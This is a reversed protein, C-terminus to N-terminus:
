EAAVIGRASGPSEDSGCREREWLHRAANVDRDFFVGCKDCRVRKQTGIPDGGCGYHNSIGSPRVQKFCEKGFAHRLSETFVSVGVFQRMANAKDEQWTRNDKDPEPNKATKSKDWDEIIVYEYRRSLQAAKKRYRDKRHRAIRKELARAWNTLHADKRRWWELFLAMKQEDDDVGHKTFFDFLEEKLSSLNNHSAFLDKKELGGNGFRLEKWDKWLSSVISRDIKEIMALAVRAMKGHARWKAVSNLKYEDADLGNDNKLYECFIDKISEFLIDSNSLLSKAFNRQDIMKAPITIQESSDGDWTTGVVVSGDDCIRWGLNIAVRGDGIERREFKKSEITFQLEYVTRLGIKRAVVYVWKIVADDPMPRHYIFGVDLYVYEDKKGKGNILIRCTAAQVNDGRRAKRSKGRVHVEPHFELKIKNLRCSLADALTVNGTVQAGVKGEGTFRSFRPNFVSDEFSKKAATEVALYTGTYCNSNSRADNSSRNSEIDVQLKEKWSQHWHEQCMRDRIAQITEVRQSSRPGLKKAGSEEIRKKLEKDAPEFFEKVVRAREKKSAEASRKVEERCQRLELEQSSGSRQDRTLKSLELRAADYKAVAKEYASELEEMEPSLTRRIARYKERRAIEIEVLNNRYRNAHRLQTFIVEKAEESLLTIGYTYVRTPNTSTKRSKSSSKKNAAM